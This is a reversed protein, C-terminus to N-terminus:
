SQVNLPEWVTLSYTEADFSGIPLHSREIIKINLSNTILWSEFGMLYGRATHHEAMANEYESTGYNEFIPEIHIARKIKSHRLHELIEINSGMQELAHITIVSYNEFKFESKEPYRMDLYIGSIRNDFSKSLENVCAVASKAYDSGVLVQCKPSERLIEKLNNGSGCGLEIIHTNSSLFEKVVQSVILDHARSLFNSPASITEGNLRFYNSKYFYKPSQTERQEAWYGDWLEQSSEGRSEEIRKKLLSLVLNQEKVDLSRVGSQDIMSMVRASFETKVKRNTSTHSQM